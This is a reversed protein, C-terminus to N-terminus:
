ASVAQEIKKLPWVGGPLARIKHADRLRKFAVKKARETRGDNLGLMEFAQAQNVALHGPIFQVPVIRAQNSDHNANM